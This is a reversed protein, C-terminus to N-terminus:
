NEEGQETLIFAIEFGYGDGTGMSGNEFNYYGVSAFLESSEIKQVFDSVNLATDSNFRFVCVANEITYGVIEIHTGCLSQITTFLEKSYYSYENYVVNKDFNDIGDVATRLKTNAKGLVEAQAKKDLLNKNLLMDNLEQIEDKENEVSTYVLICSSGLACIMFLSVLVMISTNSIRGTKAKTAAKLKNEYSRLLNLERKSINAM